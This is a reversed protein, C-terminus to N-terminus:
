EDITIINTYYPVCHLSFLPSPNCIQCVTFGIIFRRKKHHNICWDHKAYIPPKTGARSASRLDQGRMASTCRALSFSTSSAKFVEVKFAPHASSWWSLMRSHSSYSRFLMVWWSEDHGLGVLKCINYWEERYHNFANVTQWNQWHWSTFSTSPQWQTARGWGSGANSTFRGSTNCSLTSPSSSAASAVMSSHSSFLSIPFGNLNQSDQPKWWSTDRVELLLPTQLVNFKSPNNINFHIWPPAHTPCLKSSNGTSIGAIRPSCQCKALSLLILKPPPEAVVGIAQSTWDCLPSSFSILGFGAVCSLNSIIPAPCLFGANGFQKFSSHACVQLTQLVISDSCFFVGLVSNRLAALRLCHPGSCIEDVM